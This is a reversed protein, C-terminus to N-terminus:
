GGRRYFIYTGDNKEDDLICLNGETLYSDEMIVKGKSSELTSAIKIREPSGLNNLEDRKPTISEQADQNDEGEDLLTLM